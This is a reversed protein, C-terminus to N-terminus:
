ILMWGINQKLRERQQIRIKKPESCIPTLPISQTSFLRETEISEKQQEELKRKLRGMLGSRLNM